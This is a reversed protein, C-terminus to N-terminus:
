FKDRSPLVAEKYTPLLEDDNHNAKKQLSKLGSRMTRKHAIYDAASKSVANSNNETAINTIRLFDFSGSLYKSM